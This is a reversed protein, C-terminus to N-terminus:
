PSNTRRRDTFIGMRNQVAAPVRYDRLVPRPDRLGCAERQVMYCWLAEGADQALRARQEAPEVRGRDDRHLSDYGDLAALAAELARGLRGLASAHEQAIEYDLAVVHESAKSAPRSNM